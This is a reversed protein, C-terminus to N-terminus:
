TGLNAEISTEIEKIAEANGWPSYNQRTKNNVYSKWEYCNDLDILGLINHNLNKLPNLV